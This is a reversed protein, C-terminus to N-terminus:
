VCSYPASCLSLTVCPVSCMNRIAPAVKTVSINSKGFTLQLGTRGEMQKRRVDTEKGETRLENVM